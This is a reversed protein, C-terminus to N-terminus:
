SKVANKIDLIPTGDLMDVGIFKIKNGDIEKITINSVGIPNPRNPAHTSFLGTIPGDGMLPVKMEFGKSQNFYFVLMYEEGVNMDCMAELYKPDIEMWAEHTNRTNKPTKEKNNFKSRIYGIPHFIIDENTM